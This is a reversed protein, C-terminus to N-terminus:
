VGPGTVMAQRSPFMPLHHSLLYRGLLVGVSRTHHQLYDAIEDWSRRTTQLLPRSCDQYGM